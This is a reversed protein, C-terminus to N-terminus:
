ARQPLTPRPADRRAKQNIAANAEKKEHLAEKSGYKRLCAQQLQKVDYLRMPAGFAFRPNDCLVVDLELLDADTLAYTKRADTACM